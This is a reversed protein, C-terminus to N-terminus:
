SQAGLEGWGGLGGGSQEGELHHLVQRAAVHHRQEDALLDQGLVPGAEVQRLHTSLAHARRMRCAHLEPPQRHNAPQLWPQLLTLQSPLHIGAKCGSEVAWGM